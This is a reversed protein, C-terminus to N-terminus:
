KTAGNLGDRSFSTCTAYDKERDHQWLAYGCKACPEAPRNSGPPSRNTATAPALGVAAGSQGDDAQALRMDGDPRAQANTNAGQSCRLMPWLAKALEEADTVNMCVAIETTLDHESDIKM